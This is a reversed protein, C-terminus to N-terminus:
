TSVTTVASTTTLTTTLKCCSLKHVKWHERQHDKCCYYTSRCRGCKLMKSFLWKGGVNCGPLACVRVKDDLHPSVERLPDELLADLPPIRDTWYDLMVLIRTEICASDECHSNRASNLLQVAFCKNADYHPPKYLLLSQAIIVLEYCCLYKIYMYCAEFYQCKIHNEEETFIKYFCITMRYASNRDICYLERDLGTTNLYQLSDFVLLISQHFYNDRLDVKRTDNTALLFFSSILTYGDNHLFWLLSRQDDNGNHVITLNALLLASKTLSSKNLYTSNTSVSHLAKAVAQLTHQGEESLIINQREYNHIIMERMISFYTMFQTPYESSNIKNTILNLFRTILPSTQLLLLFETRFSNEKKHLLLMLTNEIMHDNQSYEILDACKSAVTFALEPPIPIPKDIRYPIKQLIAENGSVAFSQLLNIVSKASKSLITQRETM